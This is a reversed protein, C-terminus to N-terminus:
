IISKIAKVLYGIEEKNKYVKSEARCFEELSNPAVTMKPIMELIEFRANCDKFGGVEELLKKIGTKTYRLYDKDEPHHHPFLFHFSIYLTGGTKLLGWINWIAQVPNWIYEMVELCLITDFEPLEETDIPYNLDYIYDGGKYDLIKYGRPRAYGGVDLVDGKIDITKVWGELQKRINSSM